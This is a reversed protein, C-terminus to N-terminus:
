DWWIHCHELPDAPDFQVSGAGAVRFTLTDDSRFDEPVLGNDAAWRSFENENIKFGRCTSVVANLKGYVDPINLQAKTWEASKATGSFMMVVALLIAAARVCKKCRMMAVNEEITEEPDKNAGTANEDGGAKGGGV